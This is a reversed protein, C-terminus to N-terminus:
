LGLYRRVGDALVKVGAALDEDSTNETWHHSIGGISPVFLMSVPMRRAVTKADHGGGSHMQQWRGPAYEEAAASLAAMMAPDCVAPIDNVQPHMTARCPGRADSEEMLRGLTAELRQMIEISIDRFHLWVEVRGPIITPANPEVLIRGATWVTNPGCVKPFEEDVAALLRVAAVSADRREQMSTGGAHDQQGEFVLRYMWIGVIGTVVGIQNGAQELRTGQEIHLEFFGRYRAPDLVQRELGALGAQELATRLPTGDHRSKGTDIESEKLDGIFSRSGLYGIGFHCEEDAFACVDVPLGARALALGAVVGLAGDLWGAELQSEIHSGVLVRPGNGAGRGFVNGIGDIAPTLSLGEMRAMLWRRSEMDQPSYTPRSVGTKFTGIQRLEYLDALFADTDVLTRAM